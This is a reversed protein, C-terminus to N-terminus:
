RCWSEGLLIGYANDRKPDNQSNHKVIKVRNAQAQNDKLVSCLYEAYGKRNTGDDLVGVYLVGADTIIADKVKKEKKVEALAKNNDAFASSSILITLILIIKNM